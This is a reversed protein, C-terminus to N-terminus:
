KTTKVAQQTAIGYTIHSPLKDSMGYKSAFAVLALRTRNDGVGNSIEAADKRIDRVETRIGELQFLVIALVGVVLTFVAINSKLLEM